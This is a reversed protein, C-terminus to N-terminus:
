GLLQGQHCAREALEELWAAPNARLEAFSQNLADLLREREYVDLARGIIDQQSEGTEESLRQLREHDRASIRTAPM